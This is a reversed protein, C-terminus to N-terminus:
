TEMLLAFDSCVHLDEHFVANQQMKDLGDSNPLTVM